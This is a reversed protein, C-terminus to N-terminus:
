VSDEDLQEAILEATNKKWSDMENELEEDTMPQGYLEARFNMHQAYLWALGDHIVKLNAELTNM